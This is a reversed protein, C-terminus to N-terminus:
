QVPTNVNQPARNMTKTLKQILLGELIPCKWCCQVFSQEFVAIKLGQRWFKKRKIVHMNKYFFDQIPLLHM